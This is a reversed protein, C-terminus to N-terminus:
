KPRTIKMMHRLISRRTIILANEVLILWFLPITYKMCDYEGGVDVVIDCQDLIDQKRTRVIVVSSLIFTFPHFLRVGHNAYEPLHRLMPVSLAEDSHFSGSHTGIAKRGEPIM